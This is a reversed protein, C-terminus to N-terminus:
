NNCPFAMQLALKAESAASLHRVEPHSYFYNTIVDAAQGGTVGAGPCIQRLEVLVDVMGMVYATCTGNRPNELPATCDEYLQTGNKFGPIPVTYQSSASVPSLLGVAVILARLRMPFGERIVPMWDQSPLNKANAMLSFPDIQSEIPAKASDSSGVWAAVGALMLIIAISFLIIHRM